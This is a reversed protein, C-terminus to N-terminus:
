EPAENEEPTLPLTGPASPAPEEAPSLLVTREVLPVTSVSLKETQQDGLQKAGQLIETSPILDSREKNLRETGENLIATDPRIAKQERRITLRDTPYGNRLKQTQGTSGAYIANEPCYVPKKILFIVALIVTLALLAIGAYFLLQGTTM